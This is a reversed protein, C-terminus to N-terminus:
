ENPKARERTPSQNSGDYYNKFIIYQHMEVVYLTYEINQSKWLWELEQWAWLLHVKFTSQESLVDINLAFVNCSKGNAHSTLKPRSNQIHRIFIVYAISCHMAKATATCMLHVSKKNPAIYTYWNYCTQMSHTYKLNCTKMYATHFRSECCFLFLASNFYMFACECDYKAIFDSINVCNTNSM